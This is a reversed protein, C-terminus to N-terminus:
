LPLLAGVSYSFMVYEYYLTYLAIYTHLKSLWLLHYNAFTVVFGTRIRACIPYQPNEYGCMGAFDKDDYFDVVLKKYPNLLLGNDKSGQIYWCIRKFATKHSAKTKHTFLDCQHVAFSIDPRTNSELYLMM